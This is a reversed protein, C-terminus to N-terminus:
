YSSPMRLNITHLINIKIENSLDYTMAKFADSNSFAEMATLFAKRCEEQGNGSSVSEFSHKKDVPKDKEPDVILNQVQRDSLEVCVSFSHGSSELSM